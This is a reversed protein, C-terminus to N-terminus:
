CCYQIYIQQVSHMTYKGGNIYLKLMKVKNKDTSEINKNSRKEEIKRYFYKKTIM